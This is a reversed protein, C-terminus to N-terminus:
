GAPEWAYSRRVLERLAQPDAAAVDPLYLCAKGTSHRGLRGLLDQYHDFGGSVYVVTQAKRPAFGVRFFEVTRGSAYTLRHRGYGVMSPGWMVPRDGTAESMLALLRRADARRKDQAVADIFAGVDADTPVTKPQAPM